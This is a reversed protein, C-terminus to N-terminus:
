TVIWTLFRLINAVSSYLNFSFRAAGVICSIKSCFSKPGKKLYQIFSIIIIIITIFITIIIITIIILFIIIIIIITIIVIIIISIIIM